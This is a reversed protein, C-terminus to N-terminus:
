VPLTVEDCLIEASYGEGKLLEIIRGSDITSAHCKVRLIKDCDDLDFNVEYGPSSEDIIGALRQAQRADNVNTKFVEIEVNMTNM